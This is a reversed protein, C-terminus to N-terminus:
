IEQQRYRVTTVTVPGARVRVDLSTQVLDIDLTWPDLGNDYNIGENHGRERWDLDTDAILSM